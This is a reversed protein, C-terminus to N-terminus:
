GDPHMHAALRRRRLQKAWDSAGPPGFRTPKACSPVRAADHERRAKELVEAHAQELVAHQDKLQAAAEDHKEHAIRLAEQARREADEIKALESEQQQLQDVDLQSRRRLIKSM